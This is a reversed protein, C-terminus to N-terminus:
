EPEKEGSKDLMNTNAICANVESGSAQIGTNNYESLNSLENTDSADPSNLCSSALTTQTEKTPIYQGRKPKVLKGRMVLESLARDITRSSYKGKFKEKIDKTQFMGIKDEEIWVLIQKACIEVDNLIDEATGIANLYIATETPNWKVEIIQGEKEKARRCKLQRLIVRDAGKREFLIVVDAYNTIESSGRLEDMKDFPDKGAIGKRLHHILIWTSSYKVMLPQIDKTFVENM